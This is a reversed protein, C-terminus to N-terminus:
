FSPTAPPVCSMMPVLPAAQQTQPPKLAGHVSRWLVLSSQTCCHAAVQGALGSRCSEGQQPGLHSAASPFHGRSAMPLYGRSLADRRM